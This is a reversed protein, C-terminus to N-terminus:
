PQNDINKIDALGLIKSSFTVEEAKASKMNIMIKPNENLVYFSLTLNYDTLLNPDSCVTLVKDKKARENLKKIAAPPTGTPICLIQLKDLSADPNSITVLTVKFPVKKSAADFHQKIEHEGFIGISIESTPTLNSYNKIFPIIKLVLVAQMKDPCIDLSFAFSGTVIVSLILIFIKNMTKM